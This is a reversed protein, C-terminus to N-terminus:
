LRHMALFVDERQIRVQLQQPALQQSLTRRVSLLDIPSTPRARASVLLAFCDAEHVPEWATLELGHKDLEQQLQGAVVRPEFTGSCMGALPFVSVIYGLSSPATGLVSM